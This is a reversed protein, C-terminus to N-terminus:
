ESRGTELSVIRSRGGLSAIGLVPVTGSGEPFEYVSAKLEFSQVSLELGPTM